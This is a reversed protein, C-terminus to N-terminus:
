NELNLLSFEFWKSLWRARITNKINVIFTACVLVCYTLELEVQNTKM